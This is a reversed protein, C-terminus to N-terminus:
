GNPTSTPLPSTPTLTPRPPLAEPTNTPPVQTPAVTPPIATATPPAQTATPPAATATPPAATATPPVATATPPAFTATPPAAAPPVPTNTSQVQIQTATPLIVPTNTPLAITETPEAEVVTPLYPALCADSVFRGSPITVLNAFYNLVREESISDPNTLLVPDFDTPDFTVLSGSEIEVNGLNQDSWSCAGNYCAVSVVPSELDYDISMCGESVNFQGAPQNILRGTITNDNSRMLISSGKEIDFYNSEPDESFSISSNPLLYVEDALDSDTQQDSLVVWAISNSIVQGGPFLLSGSNSFSEFVRGILGPNTEPLPTPSPTNTPRPTSTAIPDSSVVTTEPTQCSSDQDFCNPTDSNPDTAAVGIGDGDQSAPPANDSGQGTQDSATSPAEETKIRETIQSSVSPVEAVEDPGASLNWVFLIGTTLILLAAVAFVASRLYGNQSTLRGESFVKKIINPQDAEDPNVTGSGPPMVLTKSDEFASPNAKAPAFVAERVAKTKVTAAEKAILLDKKNITGNSHKPPESKTQPLSTIPQSIPSQKLDAGAFDMVQTDDIGNSSSNQDSQDNLVGSLNATADESKVHPVLVEIGEQEAEDIPDVKAVQNTSSRASAEVVPTDDLQEEDAQITTVVPNSKPPVLTTSIDESSTLLSESITFFDVYNSRQTHISALTLDDTELNKKAWEALKKPIARVQHKASVNEFVENFAVEENLINTALTPQCVIVATAQTPNISGVHNLNIKDQPFSDSEGLLVATSYIKEQDENPNVLTQSERIIIKGSGIQVTYLDTNHIIAATLTCPSGGRRDIFKKVSEAAQTVGGSIINEIKSDKRSQLGTLFSILAVRPTDGDETPNFKQSIAAIHLDLGEGTNLTASVAHAAGSKGKNKHIYSATVLKKQM